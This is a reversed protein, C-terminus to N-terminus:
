RRDKAGKSMLRWSVRCRWSRRLCSGSTAELQSPPPQTWKPFGLCHPGVHGAHGVHGVTESNPTFDFPPPSNIHIQWGGHWLPWRQQLHSLSPARYGFVKTEWTVVPLEPQFQDLSEGQDGKPRWPSNRYYDPKDPLHIADLCIYVEQLPM